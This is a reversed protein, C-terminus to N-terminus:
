LLNSNNIDLKAKRIKLLSEIEAKLYPTKYLLNYHHFGLNRVQFGFDELMWAYASIKLAYQNYNCDDIHSIPYLMKQGKFGTTDIKKNTKYDDIDIYRINKETSIFVKDSQGALKYKDNWLVLEPYFGDELEYLNKVSNNAYGDVKDLKIVKFKTKTFPNDMVKRIFSMKEADKHYNNGKVISVNKSGNWENRIKEVTDDFLKSEMDLSLLRVAERESTFKWKIKKFNPMLRELAKYKLWYETDFPQKYQDVLQSVSIYKDNNENFYEHNKDTFYIM